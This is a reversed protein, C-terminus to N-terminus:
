MHHLKTVGTCQSDQAFDEQAELCGYLLRGGDNLGKNFAYDKKKEKVHLSCSEHVTYLLNYYFINFSIYIHISQQTM